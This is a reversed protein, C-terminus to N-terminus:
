LDNVVDYEKIAVQLDKTSREFRVTPKDLLSRWDPPVDIGMAAKLLRHVTACNLGGSDVDRQTNWTVDVGEWHRVRTGGDDHSIAGQIDVGQNAVQWISADPAWTGQVGACDAVRTVGWLLHGAATSRNNCMLLTWEPNGSRVVLYRTTFSALPLLWNVAEDTGAGESEVLPGYKSLLRRVADTTSDFPAQFACLSDLYNSLPTVETNWVIANPISRKM